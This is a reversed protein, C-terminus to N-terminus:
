GIITMQVYSVSYEKLFYQTNYIVVFHYMTFKDENVSIFTWLKNCIGQEIIKLMAEVQDGNQKPKIVKCSKIM